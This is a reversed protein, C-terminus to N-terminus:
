SVGEYVNLHAAAVEDWGRGHRLPDAAASLAALARGDRSLSRLRDALVDPRHPAVLNTPAGISQALAASVLVPLRHALSLALVGSSGHPQPYLLLGIDAAAFWLSIEEDPVYGTFLASPHAAVLEDVYGGSRAFRPHEGGAVVVQAEGHLLEGAALALELGKYPAVFGFCLVVFGDIGLAQRAAARVAPAPTEIGHPIVVADPVTSVFSEEHVICVGAAAGVAHQLGALGRRAVVAPLPIRHMRTYARDVTPPAVVQHMTVVPGRRRRRLEALSPVLAPVSTPGGYLFLEHQLHVVRAGTSAAVAVAQPLATAGRRYARHVTVPGDVEVYRAGREQPAVVHVRAGARVLAHALNATYSAVGSSGGHTIGGPPYPAILAVDPASV